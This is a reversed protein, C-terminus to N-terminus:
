RALRVNRAKLGHFVAKVFAPAGYIGAEIQGRAGDGGLCKFAYDALETPSGEEHCAELRVQVHSFAAGADVLDPRAARDGIALMPGGGEGSETSLAFPGHADIVPFGASTERADLSSAVEAAM